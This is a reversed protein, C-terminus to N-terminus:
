VLAFWNTSHQTFFQVITHNLMAASYEFHRVSHFCAVFCGFCLTLPPSPTRSQARPIFYHALAPPVTLRSVPSRSWALVGCKGKYFAGPFMELCCKFRCCPKKLTPLSPNCLRLSFFHFSCLIFSLIFSLSTNLFFIEGCPQVHGAATHLLWVILM